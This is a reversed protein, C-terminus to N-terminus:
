EKALATIEATDMIEYLAAKQKDNQYKIVFEVGLRDSSSVGAQAQIDCIWAEYTFGNREGIAHSGNLASRCVQQEGKVTAVGGSLRNDLIHKARDLTGQGTFAATIDLSAEGTAKYTFTYYDDMSYDFLEEEAYVVVANTDTIKLQYRKGIPTRKPTPTPQAPTPADTANASAPDTTDTPPITSRLQQPDSTSPPTKAAVKAKSATKAEADGSNLSILQITFVILMIACVFSFLAILLKVTRHM